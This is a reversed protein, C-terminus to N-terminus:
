VLVISNNVSDKNQTRTRKETARVRHSHTHFLFRSFSFHVRVCACVCVRVCVCVCARVCVCVCVCVREREREREREGEKRAKGGARWCAFRASTCVFRAGDSEFWLTYVFRLSSQKCSFTTFGHELRERAELYFTWLQDKFNPFYDLM